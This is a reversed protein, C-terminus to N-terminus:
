VGGAVVSEKDVTEHEFEVVQAATPSTEPLGAIRPVTFPLVQVSKSWGGTSESSEREQEVDVVHTATPTPKVPPAVEIVVVLKEVQCAVVEIGKPVSSPDTAQGFWVVQTATPVL